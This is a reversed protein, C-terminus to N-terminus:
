QRFLENIRWEEHYPFFIFNKKFQSNLLYFLLFFMNQLPRVVNAGNNSAFCNYITININQRSIFLLGGGKPNIQM